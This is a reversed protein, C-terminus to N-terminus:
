LAGQADEWLPLSKEIVRCGSDTLKYYLNGHKVPSVKEIWGNKLLTKVNRVVTTRDVGLKDGIKIFSNNDKNGFEVLLSLQSSTIGAEKLFSDYIRKIRFYEKRANVCKCYDNIDIKM